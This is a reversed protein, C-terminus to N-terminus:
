IVLDLGLEPHVARYVEGQGGGGLRGVVPYKGIMAPTPGQHEPEPGMTTSADAGPPVGFTVTSPAERLARVEARLRVVRRSCESCSLLHDRLAAVVPQDLAAPLLDRDDPCPITAM